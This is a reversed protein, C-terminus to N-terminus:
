TRPGSGPKPLATGTFLNLALLRYAQLVGGLGVAGKCLMAQLVRVPFEIAVSAVALSALGLGGFHLGAYTVRSRIHLALSVGTNQSSSVRGIHTVHADKLYHSQYGLNNVRASLDVDEYYLFLREDFGNIEEFVSRRIMLAAGMVQGVTRSKGHAELSLYPYSSVGGMRHWGITRLMLGTLSPLGSCSTAVAGTSNRIEPGVIGVNVNQPDSLFKVMPALSSEDVVADPNLFYIAPANGSSAGMNCAAGFGINAANTKIDVKGVAQVDSTFTLSKDGNNIVFVRADISGKRAADFVAGVCKVTHTASKYNVIVVDVDTM